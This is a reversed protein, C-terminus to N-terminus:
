QIREKTKSACALEMAVLNMDIGGTQLVAATWARTDRGRSSV